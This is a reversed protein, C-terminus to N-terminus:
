LEMTEVMKIELKITPLGIIPHILLDMNAICLKEKMSDRTKQLLEILQLIIAMKLRSIILKLKIDMINLSNLSNLELKMMHVLQLSIGCMTSYIEMLGILLQKLLHEKPTNMVEM